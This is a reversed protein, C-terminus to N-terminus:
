GGLLVLWFFMRGRRLLTRGQRGVFKGVSVDWSMCDFDVGM